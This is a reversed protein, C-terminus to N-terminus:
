PQVHMQRYRQLPQQSRGVYHATTNHEVVWANGKGYAVSSLASKMVIASQAGGYAKSIGTDIVLIQDDKCRRRIGSFHPTHGMVMRYSGLGHLAQQVLACATTEDDTAYGRYWFPGDSSWLALEPKTINNPLDYEESPSSLAKLLLSHGLENIADTGMNAWHPTIGGHVFTISSSTVWDDIIGRAANPLLAVNATVNYFDLWEKGLWGDISMARRRGAEGGFSDIDGNTVYRWDHLANMMEHNGLLNIVQGGAKASQERLSQYLTYLKITDDGRDVTDGTSVLIDKGAIWKTSDPAIVGTNRLVALAHDYDGHLDAVGIIRREFLLTEKKETSSPALLWFYAGVLVVALAGIRRLSPM